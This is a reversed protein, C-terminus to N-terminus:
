LTSFFKIHKYLHVYMEKSATMKFICHHKLIASSLFSCQTCSWWTKELNEAPRSFSISFSLQAPSHYMFNAQIQRFLCKISGLGWEELTWTKKSKRHWESFMRVMETILPFVISIRLYNIKGLKKKKKKFRSCIASFLVEFICPDRHFYHHRNIEM